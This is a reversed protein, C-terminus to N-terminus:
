GGMDAYTITVTETGVQLKHEWNNLTDDRKLDFHVISSDNGSQYMCLNTDLEDDFGHESETNQRPGLVLSLGNGFSLTVADFPVKQNM